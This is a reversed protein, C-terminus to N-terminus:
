EINELNVLVFLSEGRLKLPIAIYDCCFVGASSLERRTLAVAGCAAGIAVVRFRAYRVKYACESLVMCCLIEQVEAVSDAKVALCLDQLQRKRREYEQQIRRRQERSEHGNWPPWWRMPWQLPGWAVKPLRARQDRIWAEVRTQVAEM